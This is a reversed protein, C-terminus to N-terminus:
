KEAYTNCNDLDDAEVYEQRIVIENSTWGAIGAPHVRPCTKPNIARVQVSIVSRVHSREELRTRIM